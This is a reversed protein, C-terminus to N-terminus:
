CTFLMVKEKMLVFIFTRGKETAQYKSENIVLKM